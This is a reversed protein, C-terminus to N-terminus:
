AAVQSSPAGNLYKAGNETLEEYLKGVAKADHTLESKIFLRLDKEFSWGMGTPRAGKREWKHVAVHSVGFIKGFDAQTLEFYHRVFRLEAGRLPRHLHGLVGLVKTSLKEYDIQPVWEGRAKVLAVKSLRIPFGLAHDIYSELHKKDM